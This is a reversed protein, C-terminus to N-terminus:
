RPRTPIAGIFWLATGWTMLTHVTEHDLTGGLYLFSPVFTLVLGALALGRLLQKM